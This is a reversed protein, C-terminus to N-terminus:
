GASAVGPAITRADADRRAGPATLGCGGCAGLALFARLSTTAATGAAHLSSPPIRDRSRRVRRPTIQAGTHARRRAPVLPQGAAHPRPVSSRDRARRPPQVRDAPGARPHAPPNHQATRARARRIRLEVARMTLWTVSAFVPQLGHAVLESDGLTSAGAGDAIVAALPVGTAAARLAEEAGMSLGLAAIKRGDVGPQRALFAVAGALDDAGRWGLANTQGASAGHGRADYALVTYGHAALMRLYPVTDTRTGHSGHLLIVAVGHRGPVYWASLRVGDRAPFTVDRAGALGLETASAPTPRPAHTAVGANIAPVILWQVMVFGSLVVSAVQAVRRRGRLAIRFALGILVIGAVTVLVGTYDSGGLGTLLAHPVSSALGVVAAALGVFAALFGRALRGAGAFIRVAVVTGAAAALLVARALTGSGGPQILAVDALHLGAVLACAAFVRQEGGHVPPPATRELERGGGVPSSGTEADSRPTLLAPSM